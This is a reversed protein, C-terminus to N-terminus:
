DIKIIWLLFIFFLHLSPCIYINIYIIKSLLKISLCISLYIPLYFSLLFPLFVYQTYAKGLIHHGPDQDRFMARLSAIAEQAVRVEENFDGGGSSDLSGGIMPPSRQDAAAGFKGGSHIMAELTATASFSPDALEQYNLYKNFHWSWYYDFYQKLFRTQKIHMCLTDMGITCFAPPHLYTHKFCIKVCLIYKRWTAIQM